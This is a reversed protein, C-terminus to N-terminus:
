RPGAGRPENMSSDAGYPVLWAPVAGVRSRSVNNYSM